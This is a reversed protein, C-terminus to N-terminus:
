FDSSPMESSLLHLYCQKSEKRGQFEDELPLMKRSESADLTPERVSLDHKVVSINRKM